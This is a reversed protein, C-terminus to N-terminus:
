RPDDTKSPALPLNSMVIQVPHEKGRECLREVTQWSDRAWYHACHDRHPCFGGMCAIM